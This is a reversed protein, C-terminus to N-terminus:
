RIQIDSTTLNVIFPNLVWFDIYEVNNAEFDNTNLKSMIGGWRTEPSNLQYKDNIGATM